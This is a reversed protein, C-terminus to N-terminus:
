AAPLHHDLIRNAASVRSSCQHIKLLVVKLTALAPTFEKWLPDSNIFRSQPRMHRPTQLNLHWSSSSIFSSSLELESLKLRMQEKEAALQTLSAEKELERQHLQSRQYQYLTVYEGITETEIELQMLTHELREKEDDMAQMFYERWNVRAARQMEEFEARSVHPVAAAMPHSAAEAAANAKLSKPCNEASRKRESELEAGAPLQQHRLGRIPRLQGGIKIHGCLRNSSNSGPVRYLLARLS